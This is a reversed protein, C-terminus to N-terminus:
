FFDSLSKRNAGGSTAPRVGTRAGQLKSKADKVVNTKTEAILDKVDFQTKVLKALLLLKKRNEGEGKFIEGLEAQFETIYKNKGVKVTPKTIFNMLGKKDVKEFNFSGVSQTSNLEKDLDENFKKSSKEKQKSIQEARTAIATKRETDIDKLKNLYKEAFAKKKGNEKLWDIRDTIEDEDMADVTRMYHTLILDQEKDEDLNVGDISFTNQYVQMFEQTSGGAKKFKLFAKGDEDMEEFFAEFTEEVRSEIESDQLEFFKDEDIEEGEKIEVNQFIGKEKLESALTTYFKDDVDGPKTDDEKGEKTSNPKEEEFFGEVNKDDENDSEKKEKGKSADEGESSDDDAVNTDDTDDEKKVSKVVEETEDGKPNINFFDGANDWNFDQLTEINDVDQRKDEAM